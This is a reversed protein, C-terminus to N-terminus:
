RRTSHRTGTSRRARAPRRSRTATARPTSATRAPSRPSRASTRRPTRSTTPRGARVPSTRRSARDPRFRRPLPEVVDDRGPRDRGARVRRQEGHPGRRRARRRAAAPHLRGVPVLLGPRHAGLRAADRHAHHGRRSDRADLHGHSGRRHLNGDDGGAPARSGARRLLLPGARSRAGQRVLPHRPLPEGRGQRQPRDALTVTGAPSTLTMVIDSGAEHELNTKAKVVCTPPLGAPVDITSTVLTSDDPIPLTAPNSLHVEQVAPPSPITTVELKWSNMTGSHSPLIDTLILTWVGNPDEGYFAGFSGDPEVPTQLQGSTYVQLSAPGPPNTDGADDDWVTGNFM